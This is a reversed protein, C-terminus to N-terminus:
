GLVPLGISHKGCGRSGCDINTNPTSDVWDWGTWTNTCPPEIAGGCHPQFAGLWFIANELPGPQVERVINFAAGPM